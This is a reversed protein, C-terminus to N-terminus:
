EAKRRLIVVDWVLPKRAVNFGRFSDVIEWRDRAPSADLTQRNTVVLQAAAAPSELYATSSEERITGGQYFALSPEKYEIMVVQGPRTAGLEILKGAVRRPLNLAACQPVVLTWLILVCGASLIGMCASALLIRREFLKHATYITMGIVFSALTIAGLYFRASEGPSLRGIAFISLGGVCVVSAWIVVGIRFGLDSLERTTGHRGRVILDAILMSLFVYAPLLYHTLKTQYIELFLWPGIIAALSFRVWPVARRRCGLLLAAPLFLSWPFLTAWITGAYFGPPGAHKEAPELGRQIVEKGLMTAIAGPHAAELKVVWPVVIAAIIALVFVCRAVMGPLFWDLDVQKFRRPATTFKDIVWLALLTAVLFLLVVPGKTLIALGCAAAFLGLMPWSAGRRWILYTCLMAITVWLMLVSDSMCVKAIYMPLLATGLVFVSWFARRHGVIRRLVGSLTALTVLMAVASPFRAAFANQGFIKMSGAQLWYILIPKKLRLEDLYHPVTWDGGALMQASAQAFRPEDRDMLPFAGNGVFYVVMLLLFVLILPGHTRFFSRM